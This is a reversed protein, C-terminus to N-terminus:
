QEQLLLACAMPAQTDWHSPALISWQLNPSSHFSKATPRLFHPNEIYRMSGSFLLLEIVPIEFFDYRCLPSTSLPYLQLRYLLLWEHWGFSLTQDKTHPVTHCLSRPIQTSVFNNHPRSQRIVAQTVQTLNYETLNNLLLSVHGQKSHWALKQKKEKGKESVYKVM